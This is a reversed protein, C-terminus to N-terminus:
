PAAGYRSLSGANVDEPSVYGRATIKRRAAKKGGTAGTTTPPGAKGLSPAGLAAAPAAATGLGQITSTGEPSVASGLSPAGLNESAADQQGPGSHSDPQAKGLTPVESTEMEPTAKGLTPTAVPSAPKAAESLPAGQQSPPAFKAAAEEPTITKVPNAVTSSPATATEALKHVGPEVVTRSTSAVPELKAGGLASRSHPAMPAGPLALPAPQPVTTPKKDASGGAGEAQPPKMEPLAQSRSAPEHKGHQPTVPQKAGAEDDVDPRKALKTTSGAGSGCRFELQEGLEMLRKIESLREPALNTKAWEPGRDMEGQVGAAVLSDREVILSKCTDKDLREACAVGGGAAFLALVLGSRIWTKRRMVPFLM